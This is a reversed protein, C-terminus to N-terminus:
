VVLVEANPATDRLMQRIEAEYLRNMVLVSDPQNDRLFEASVIKQGAGAIYMGQKRPNIDVVSAISDAKPVTNLFTVGKSGAGWLVVKQGQEALEELMYTWYTLKERYRQSFEETLQQLHPISYNTSITRPEADGRALVAEISIFQGGYTEEHHLVEFGAAQFLHVLSNPTFYGCHEYIIDWVSSDRLSFLANPVEFYVVANESQAVSQRINRLFQCPDEIHELVHRCCVIDARYDSYKESYFDQVFTINESSEAEGNPVYSPDFGYGRNDGAQSMLRLFDGKGCGVDVVVKHHLDYRNTLNEALEVAFEQFRPSFHLSNEYQQNYKMLEPDFVANYIHGCTHCFALDIDGRPVSVAEERTALLINCHTPVNHLDFFASVERSGCVPCRFQTQNSM